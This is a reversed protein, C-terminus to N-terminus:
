SRLIGPKISCLKNPSLQSPGTSSGYPMSIFTDPDRAIDKLRRCTRALVSLTRYATRGISRSYLADKKLEEAQILVLYECINLLLEPPLSLLDVM